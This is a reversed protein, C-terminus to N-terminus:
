VHKWIKKSDQGCQSLKLRKCAVEEFRQRKIVQNRVKKYKIWDSEKKSDIATRHLIDRETMFKRTEDSLWPNYNNRIQICKMPAMLDLIFLIKDSILKVAKNVDTCLYVDLWSIKQVATLFESPNLNRYSRKMIYKPRSIISKSVRVGSVLMHDSGGCM